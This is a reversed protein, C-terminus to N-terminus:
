RKGAEDFQWERLNDQLNKSRVADKSVNDAFTYKFNNAYTRKLDNIESMTLGEGSDYKSKLAAIRPADNSDTYVLREALDDIMPQIVDKGTPRIKDPILAFADDAEKMSKQFNQTAEELAGEGTKTMGRAVAFEGPTQGTM